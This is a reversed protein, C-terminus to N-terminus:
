IKITKAVFKNFKKEQLGTLKVSLKGLKKM